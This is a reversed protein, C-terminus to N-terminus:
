SRPHLGSGRERDEREAAAVGYGIVMSPLLSVSAVVLCGIIASITWAPLDWYLAVGFLLVALALAGFGVRRGTEAWAAYRARQVTIRDSSAARGSTLHRSLAELADAVERPAVLMHLHGADLSVVRWGRRGASSAADEYAASLLLYGCPADPFSAPVAIPEEFLRLPLPELEEAFRDRLTEDPVLAALVADSWWEAWPPVRGDAALGRIRQVSEPPADDFRTARNVPLGADVFVYGVVPNTLTDGAAPLVAGAGSHGVLVVPATRSHAEVAQRVQEAHHHLLTGPTSDPNDLRPLVVDHGRRRLEEAVLTWTLSGVLPSHVLVFVPADLAM